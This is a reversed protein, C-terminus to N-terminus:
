QLRACAIIKLVMTTSCIRTSRRASRRADLKLSLCDRGEESHKSWPWESRARVRVCAIALGNASLQKEASSAATQRVNNRKRRRFTGVEQLAWGLGAV